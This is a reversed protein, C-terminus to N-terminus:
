LILSFLIILPGAIISSSSDVVIIGGLIFIVISSWNFILILNPSMLLFFLKNVVVSSRKFEILFISDSGIPSSTIHLLIILIVSSHQCVTILVAKESTIPSACSKPQSINSEFPLWITWEGRAIGTNLKVKGIATLAIISLKGVWVRLFPSINAM